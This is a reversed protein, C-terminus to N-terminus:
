KKFSTVFNQRSTYGIIFAIEKIPKTTELILAKAKKMKEEFMYETLGTGFFQKFAPKLKFSNIGVRASIEGITVHKHFNEEIINKAKYVAEVMRNIWINQEVDSQHHQTLLLLFLEEIKLKSYKKRLEAGFPVYLLNNIITRIETTISRHEKFLLACKNQTIANLFDNLFPFLAAYKYLLELPFFITFTTYEKKEFHSIVESHPLFIFNFQGEEMQIDGIDKITYKISNKLAFHIQLAPDNGLYELQFKQQFHYVNYQARLEDDYSIEQFLIKGFKDEMVGKKSYPIIYNSLGDPVTPRLIFPGYSLSSIIFDM